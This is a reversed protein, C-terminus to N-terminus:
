GSRWARTLPNNNWDAKRPPTARADERIAAGMAGGRFNETPTGYAWVHYLQATTRDSAMAMAFRSALSQTMATRFPGSWRHAEPVIRINAFLPDPDAHVQNGILAYRDFRRDPDTIDDTVYLPAGVAEAPVDYAHLYGTKPTLDAVRSLQRLKQAFSFLYIGLNFDRTDRYILDVAQGTPTEDAMTEVPDAGIEACATNVIDLDTLLAM